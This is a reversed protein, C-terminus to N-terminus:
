PTTACDLGGIVSRGHKKGNMRGVKQTHWVTLRFCSLDLPEPVVKLRGRGSKFIEPGGLRSWKLTAM